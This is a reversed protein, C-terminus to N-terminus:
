VQKVTCRNYDSPLRRDILKLGADRQRCNLVKLQAQTGTIDTETRGYKQGDTETRGGTMRGDRDGHEKRYQEM